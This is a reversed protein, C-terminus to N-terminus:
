WTVTIDRLKSKARINYSESLNNHYVLVDRLIPEVKSSNFTVYDSGDFSYLDEYEKLINKIENKRTYSCSYINVKFGHCTGKTLSINRKLLDLLPKLYSIDTKNGIFIYLKARQMKTKSFKSYLKSIYKYERKGMDLFIYRDEGISVCNISPALIKM